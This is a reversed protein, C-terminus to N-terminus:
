VSPIAPAPDEVAATPRAQLVRLADAPLHAQVATGQQYLPPGGQNQMLAQVQAGHALRLLLQTSSGLFVLREVMAPIRNPGTSEYPEIQVREPRIAVKVPGTCDILGQEAALQFDGLRIRCGQGSEPGEAHAEMLNSVGLFDAVYADAPQEYVDVPSGVQAV